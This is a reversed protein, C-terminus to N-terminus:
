IPLRLVSRIGEKNDISFEGSIQETLAKVMSLGFGADLKESVASKGNDQITFTLYTQPAHEETQATIHLTNIRDKHFAYKMSNTILENIIIALPTGLRVPVEIHPVILSVNVNIPYTNIIENVLSETFDDLVILDMNKNKYLKDYLIMMGTLRNEAQQLAEKATEDDLEDKQLSLLGKMTIMNNKIRHHVERLILNKENLLTEIQKHHQKLETIDRFISLLSISGDANYLPTKIIDYTKKNQSCALEWRVTNGAFVKDIHCWTCQQIGNELVSFCKRNRYDGFESEFAPNAFIIDFQESVIYILDPMAKFIGILNERESRFRELSSGVMGAVTLYAELEERSFQRDNMFALFLAEVTARKGPIPICLLSVASPEEIRRISLFGGTMTEKVASKIEKDISYNESKGHARKSWHMNHIEVRDDQIAGFGAAGAHFINIIANSSEYYPDQHSTLGSLYQAFKIVKSYIM